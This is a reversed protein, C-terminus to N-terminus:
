LISTASPFKLGGILPLFIKYCLVTNHNCRMVESFGAMAGRSFYM